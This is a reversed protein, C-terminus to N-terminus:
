REAVLRPKSGDDNEEIPNGDDDLEPDGPQNQPQEPELAEPAPGELDMLKRVEEPSAIPARGEAQTGYNKMATSRRSHVMAEELPSMTFTSPWKVTLDVPEPLVGAAVQMEVFPRLVVPEAFDFQREGVRDSWNARDQESALQGAESGLLIRQPIGTAASILAIQVDFCPGPDAIESGLSEIKVGRTRIIRRLQHQYEDIEAALNEEDDPDMRMEKDIDIQLGRNGALWYTEASGGVVKELDMLRNYIQQMRPVGFVNDELTNEAVHLVRSHHVQVTKSMSTSASPSGVIASSVSNDFLSIEYMKPLGFRPSTPDDEFSKVIASKETYPQMFTIERKKSSRTPGLPAELISSDNYGVLLVGYRGLGCLRDVREFFTWLKVNEKIFDKWAKDFADGGDLEPEMRWTAVPYADVVRAAIDQRTYKRIFDDVTLSQPYGFVSYLDRATGFQFGHRMSAGFRSLVDLFRLQSKGM